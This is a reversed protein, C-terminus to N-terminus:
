RSLRARWRRLRRLVARVSRAAARLRGAIPRRMVANLDVQWRDLWYTKEQAEAVARNAWAEVDALQDQLQKVHTRLRANEERLAGEETAEAPRTSREASM